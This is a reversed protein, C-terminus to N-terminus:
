YCIFIFVTSSVLNPLMEELDEEIYLLIVNQYFMQQVNMLLAKWIRQAAM